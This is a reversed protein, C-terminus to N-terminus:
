RKGFGRIITVLGALTEPDDKLQAAYSAMSPSKGVAQGGKLIVNKIDDDSVSAQWKADSYDRPKPNLMEAGPGNGRGDAGHCVACIQGFLQEARSPAGGRKRARPGSEPQANPSGSTPPPPEEGKGCAAVFVVLVLWRM